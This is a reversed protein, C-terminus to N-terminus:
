EQTSKITIRELKSPFSLKWIPSISSTVKAIEPFNKIIAELDSESRGKIADKLKEESVLSILTIKGRIGLTLSDREWIKGTELTNMQLQALDPIRVSLPDLNTQLKRAIAAELEKENLIIATITGKQGIYVKKQDTATKNATDSFEIGSLNPYFVYGAPIAKSMKEVLRTKLTAQASLKAKDTDEKTATAMKEDVGGTMPTTSKGYVLKFREPDTKFGPITFTQAPVNYSPGIQDATVKVTITGPGTATKKPITVNAPIRFIKGDATEFRTSKVLTQAVTQENYITISGSAKEQVLKEGTSATEVFVEDEVSLTDFSVDGTKVTKKASLSLSSQEYSKSYPTITLTAKALIGTAFYFILFLAFVGIAWLVIRSIKKPPESEYLPRRGGPENETEVKFTEVYDAARKSKVPIERISRKQEVVDQLVRMMM